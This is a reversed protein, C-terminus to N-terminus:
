VEVSMLVGSSAAAEAVWLRCWRGLETGGPMPRLLASTRPISAAPLERRDVAATPWGKRIAEGSAGPPPWLLSDDDFPPPPPPREFGAEARIRTGPDIAEGIPVATLRGM